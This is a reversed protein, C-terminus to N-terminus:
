RSPLSIPSLGNANADYIIGRPAKVSITRFEPRAERNTQPPRNMQMDWLRWTLLAFSGGIGIRLFNLRSMTQARGGGGKSPKKGPESEELQNQRALKEEDLNLVM